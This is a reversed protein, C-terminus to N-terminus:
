PYRRDCSQRPPPFNGGARRRRFETVGLRTICRRGNASSKVIARSLEVNNTSAFLDASSSGCIARAEKKRDSYRAWRTGRVAWARATLNISGDPEILLNARIRERLLSRAHDTLSM